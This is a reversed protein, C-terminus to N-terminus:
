VSGIPKEWSGTLTKRYDFSNGITAAGAGGNTYRVIYSTNPKLYLRSDDGSIALQASGTSTTARLTVGTLATGLTGPTVGQMVTLPNPETSNFRRNLTRAATGGTFSAEFLEVTLVSETSSYARQLIVVENGTQIGTYAFGSATVGTYALETRFILGQAILYDDPMLENKSM